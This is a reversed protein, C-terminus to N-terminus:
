CYHQCNQRKSEFDENEACFTMSKASLVYIVKYITLTFKYAKL